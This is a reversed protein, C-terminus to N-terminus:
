PAAVSLNLEAIGPTGDAAIDFIHLASWALKAPQKATMDWGTALALVARIVGKHTVAGIPHRSRGIEALLPRLREQVMRPSEGGPPELDLGRAEWAAFADGAAASLDAVRRGEWDGWSMEVLRPELVGEIGVLAATEIARRLPSVLWCYDAVEPPLRWRRVEDRGGADLPVDTRGQLRHERTWGTPGHRLLALRTM